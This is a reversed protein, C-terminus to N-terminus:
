EAAARILRIELRGAPQGGPVLELADRPVGLAVLWDALEAAWLSGEEGGPYVLQLRATEDVGDAQQWARVAAAVPEMALVAAGSRPRSWDAATLTWSDAAQVPLVVLLLGLFLAEIGTKTGSHM